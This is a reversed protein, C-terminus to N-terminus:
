PTSAWRMRHHSGETETVVFGLREYLRRAAGNHQLVHLQLGCGQQRAEHQTAEILIRGLGRNRMKPWLSIDILLYDPTARQVYYRGVLGWEGELVLFDSDGYHALYHRHQLGFQDTLFAQKMAESWPLHAMEEVRTTAYLHCLWALDAAQAHRLRLGRGILPAPTDIRRDTAPFDPLGPPLPVTLATM